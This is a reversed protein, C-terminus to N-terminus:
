DKENKEELKDLEKKYHNRQKLYKEGGMILQSIRIEQNLIFEKIREIRDVDMSHYCDLDDLDKLIDDKKM